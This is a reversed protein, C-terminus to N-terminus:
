AVWVLKNVPACVIGHMSKVELILYKYNEVNFKDDIKYVFNPWNTWVKLQDVMLWNLVIFIAYIPGFCKTHTHAWLSIKYKFHQHPYIIISLLKKQELNSGYCIWMPHKQRKRTKKKEWEVVWGCAPRHPDIKKVVEVLCHFFTKWCSLHFFLSRGILSQFSSM